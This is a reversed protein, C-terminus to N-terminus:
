TVNVVHQSNTFTCCHGPTESNQNETILAFISRHLIHQLSM